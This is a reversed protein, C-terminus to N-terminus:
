NCLFIAQKLHQNNRAQLQNQIKLKNILKNQNARKLISDIFARLLNWVRVELISRPRLLQLWIFIVKYNKRHLRQQKEKERTGRLRSLSLRKSSSQLKLKKSQLAVFVIYPSNINREICRCQKISNKSNKQPRKCKTLIIDLFFYYIM